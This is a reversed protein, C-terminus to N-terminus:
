THNQISQLKLMTTCYGCYSYCNLWWRRTIGMHNVQAGCITSRNNNVTPLLDFWSVATHLPLPLDTGNCARLPGSPELFHLNGSKMVVACSPTLTSLRVCWGSKGGPPKENRNSASDIGSGYHSRFSKIDIFFELSVLQSRVLSRGIQLM